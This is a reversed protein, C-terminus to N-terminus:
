ARSRSAFRMPRPRTSWTSARRRGTVTPTAGIAPDAAREREREVPRRDDRGRETAAGLQRGAQQRGHV